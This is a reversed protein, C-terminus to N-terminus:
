LKLAIEMGEAIASLADRPEKADGIVFVEPIPEMLGSTLEANPKAGTAVVIHALGTIIEPHGNREVTVEHARVDVVPTHTLVVVDLTKFAELMHHHGDSTLGMGIDGLMEVLIVSLGKDALYHATECGVAGGGIVLTKGQINRGALVEDATIGWREVGPIPVMAPSAGTALVLVDPAEEQVLSPTVTTKFRIDLDLEHMCQRYRQVLYQYDQKFPPTWALPMRGGIDDQAEFVTVKHGRLTAVRATELGAPGAGVVMVNKKDKAPTIARERERGAQPNMLCSTSRDTAYRDHCGKNCSLCRVIRDAQGTKVKHPFEPDSILARGLGILDLKGAVLYEEALDPEHIRGQTQVPIDLVKKIESALPVNLGTPYRMNPVNRVYPYYGSSISVYDLGLTQLMLAVRKLDEVSVTGPVEHASLKASIVMDPGVEQRVREFVERMFRTRGSFDVGYEDYRQNSARAVFQEPLYGHAFHLEVADFGAEKVRRATQGFQEILMKIEVKSLERPADVMGPLPIPSPAVPQGGCLHRQTQRGAHHIQVSALCDHRQIAQALRAFGETLDDKWLGLQGNGFSGLPDVFTAGVTIMAVGGAARAQYFDIERQTVQGDFPAMHGSMACMVMRNKLKLKGIDLPSLLMEHLRSM